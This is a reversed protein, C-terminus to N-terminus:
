TKRSLLWFGWCSVPPEGGRGKYSQFMLALCLKSIPGFNHAKKPTGWAGRPELIPRCTCSGM